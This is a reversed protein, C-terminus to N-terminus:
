FNAGFSEALMKMDTSNVINSTLLRMADETQTRVKEIDPVAYVLTSEISSHGMLRQVTHENLGHKINGNELQIPLYNLSYMGFFHRTSHLGFNKPMPTGRVKYVRELAARFPYLRTNHDSLVLPRGEYPKKLVVFLLQHGCHLPAREERLYRPLTEFFITRFPEIFFTEETDRGKYAASSLAEGSIREFTNGYELPRTIPNVCSIKKEEVNIDRLLLAFAEISRLGTGLMLSWLCRDRLTKAANLLPLTDEPPLWKERGSGKAAYHFVKKYKLLSGEALRPGNCIVGAFMSKKFLQKREYPSVAKSLLADKFMAEPALNINILGMDAVAQMEIHQTASARLFGRVSSIIRENTNNQTPRRKTTAAAFYALSDKNNETGRALYLPFQKIIQTLLSTGTYTSDLSSIKSLDSLAELYVFFTKLDSAVNVTTSKPASRALDNVYCNLAEIPKGDSYFAFSKQGTSLHFAIRDLSTEMHVSDRYM